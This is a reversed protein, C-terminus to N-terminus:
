SVLALVLPVTFTSILTSLVLSAAVSGQLTHFQQSMMYVNVGVPLTVDMAETVVPKEGHGGHNVAKELNM